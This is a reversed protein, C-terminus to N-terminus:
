LYSVTKADVVDFFSAEEGGSGFMLVGGTLAIERIAVLGLGM